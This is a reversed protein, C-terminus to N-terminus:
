DNLLDLCQDIERLMRNVEAKANQRRTDDGSLAAAVQMGDIAKAMEVIKQDRKELERKLVVLEERFKANEFKIQQYEQILRELQESLLGVRELFNNLNIAFLCYLCLYVAM